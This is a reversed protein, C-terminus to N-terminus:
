GTAVSRTVNSFTVVFVQGGVLTFTISLLYVKGGSPFNSSAPLTALFNFGISDQTWINGLSGTQLANFIVSSITLTGSNVLTGASSDYVSYTISSFNAQALVLRNNNNDKGTLRAMFTPDTGQWTFAQAAVLNTNPM